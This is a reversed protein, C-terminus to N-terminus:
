TDQSIANSPGKAVHGKANAAAQGASNKTNTTETGIISKKIAALRERHIDNVVPKKYTKIEDGSFGPLTMNWNRELHLIIDKAELTASKRHKALSCGFTTISEVFEEAIDVLIDEVEPDLRESPDVQTVLEQISRKSLISSCSESPESNDTRNTAGSQITSPQAMAVSAPKVNGSGQGRMVQQHVRSPPFQQGYQEQPLHSPLPQQSKQAPSMQQQQSPILPHHSPQSIHSRQQSSQINAPPRYSPSPLPPKGQSGSSLWPQNHSQLSQSMPPAPSVAPGMSSVRMLGHGQFSQNAPSPNSSAMQARYSSQVPGQQHHSPIGGPRMQPGSNLSGMMGVGQMGQISQRVQPTSSNGGSESVNVASRGLGGFQQGYSSSSFSTPPPPMPSPHHAPVGIAIGGRQAPPAASISSSASASVSSCSSLPSQVHSSFHPHHAQQPWTRNFPPRSQSPQQQQPPQSALPISPKPNPNSKPNTQSNPSSSVPTSTPSVSSPPPSQAPSPSPEAPQSTTPTQDM